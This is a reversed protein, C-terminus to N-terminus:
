QAVNVEHLRTGFILIDDVYLYITVGVSGEFKFYVCKEADSVIYVNRLM